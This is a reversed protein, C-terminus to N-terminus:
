RERDTVIAWGVSLMVMIMWFWFGLTYIIESPSM